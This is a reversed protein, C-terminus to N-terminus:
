KGSGTIERSKQFQLGRDGAENARAWRFSLCPCFFAPSLVTMLAQFKGPITPIPLFQSIQWSHYLFVQYLINGRQVFPFPPSLLWLHNYFKPDPYALPHHHLCPCTWLFIQSPNVKTLLLSKWKSELSVSYYHPMWFIIRLSMLPPPGFSLSSLGSSCTQFNRQVPSLQLKAM